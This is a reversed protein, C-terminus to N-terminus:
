THMWPRRQKDTNQFADIETQLKQTVAIPDLGDLLMERDSAQAVFKIITNGAHILNEDLNVTLRRAQPDPEVFSVLQKIQKREIQIPLIGNGICNRFFISGFGEAIICRIGYEKLAWVAHERSSGCGFNNGSLLISSNAYASQNLVFEPNEIRKDANLYRWPAFLGDSLGTKSVTKMEKSPIIADTNINNRIIPAAVGTHEIFKNM